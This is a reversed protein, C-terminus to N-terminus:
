YATMRYPSQSKLPSRQREARYRMTNVHYFPRLKTLLQAQLHHMEALQQTLAWNEAETKELLESLIRDDEILDEDMSRGYEDVIHSETEAKLVPENNLQAASVGKGKKLFLRLRM